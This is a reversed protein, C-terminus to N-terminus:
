EDELRFTIPQRKYDKIIRGNLSSPIWKPSKKFVEVASEKLENPGGIAEIDCLTGDTCIKFQVIVTGQINQDIAIEPYVLNRKLFKLWAATGGPFKASISLECIFVDDKANQSATDNKKIVPLTQKESDIKGCGSFVFWTLISLLFQKM